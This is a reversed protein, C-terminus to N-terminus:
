VENQEVLYQIASELDARFSDVGKRSLLTNDAKLLGTLAQLSEKLLSIKGKVICYIM